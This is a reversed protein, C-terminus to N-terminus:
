SCIVGIIIGVLLAIACTAIIANKLGEGLGDM